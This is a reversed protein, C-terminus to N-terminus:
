ASVFTVTAIVSPIAPVPAVAAEALIQVNTNSVSWMFELYDKANMPTVFNWSAVLQATTGQVAVKSASNPVDVGNIRIWIYILQSSGTASDLQASFQFNYVGTVDVVIKTNAAQSVSVQSSTTTSNFKMAYATNIAAATQTTTDYFAGNPFRLNSGGDTTTLAATFNDLQNFYLRLANSFQEHFQSDYSTPSIPLNPAKSPRLLLAIQTAM